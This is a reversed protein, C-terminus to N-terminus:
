AGFGSLIEFLQQQALDSATIGFLLSAIASFLFSLFNTMIQAYNIDGAAQLWGFTIGGSSLVYCAKLCRRYTAKM